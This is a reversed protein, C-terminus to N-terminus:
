IATTRLGFKKWVVLSMALNWYIGNLLAALGAGMLGMEPVLLFLLVLHILAGVSLIYMAPRQNDTMVLMTGVQGALVGIAQGTTLVLLVPYAAVFTPSMLGLIWKGGILIILIVPVSLLLAGRATLVLTMKIQRFDGRSFLESLVPQAVMGVVLLGFGALLSIQVCAAFQGTEEPSLFFGVALVGLRNNLVNVGQIVVLPLSFGIWKSLHFRTGPKQDLGVATRRIISVLLLLAALSALFNIGVGTFRLGNGVSTWNLMAIIVLMGLPRFLLSVFQAAVVKNFGKLTGTAVLLLSVAVILLGSGVHFLWPVHPYYRPIVLVYLLGVVSSVLLSSGLSVVLLGSLETWNEEVRFRPILRINATGWGLSGVVALINVWSLAFSYHGFGDPGLFRVWVVNLGLALLLGSVQLIGVKASEGVLFRRFDFQPGGLLQRFKEVFSNNM